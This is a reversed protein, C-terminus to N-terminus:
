NIVNPLEGWKEYKMKSFLAISSTNSGFIYAVLIRIGIEKSCREIESLVKQGIGKGSFGNKIYISVEAVHDLAKRGKRYPSIAGYGIIINDSMIVLCFYKDDTHEEVWQKRDDYSFENIDGTCNGKRITENYIDTLAELDTINAKRLYLENM